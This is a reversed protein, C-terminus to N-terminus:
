NRVEQPINKIKVPNPKFRCFEEDESSSAKM